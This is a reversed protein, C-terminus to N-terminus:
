LTLYMSEQKVHPDWQFFRSVNRLFNTQEGSFTELYVDEVVPTSFVHHNFIFYYRHYLPFKLIIYTKISNVVTNQEIYGVCLM